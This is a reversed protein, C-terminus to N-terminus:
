VCKSTHVLDNLVSLIINDRAAMPQAVTLGAAIPEPHKLMAKGFSLVNQVKKAPTVCYLCM